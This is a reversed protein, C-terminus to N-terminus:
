GASAEHEPLLCAQLPARDFADTAPVGSMGFCQQFNASAQSQSPV